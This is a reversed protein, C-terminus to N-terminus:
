LCRKRSRCKEPHKMRRKRSRSPRCRHLRLIRRFIFPLYEYLYLIKDVTFCFPMTVKCYLRVFLRNQWQSFAARLPHCYRPQPFHPRDFCWSIRDGLLYFDGCSYGAQLAGELFAQCMESNPFTVSCRATLEEPYSFLGVCFGTLWWHTEETRFLLASKRCLELQFRPLCHDPVTHFVTNRRDKACVLGDAKYLGIEAGTNLGYQGKWFELLWTSGDYDFYIPECDFVMNFRLAAKDYFQCYGYDRQWAGLTSTVIDRRLLYEFGFPELIRNVRCLKEQMSMACVKRIIRCKRYHFLCACLLLIIILIPFLIYM